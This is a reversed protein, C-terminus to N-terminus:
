ELDKSGLLLDSFFLSKGQETTLQQNEGTSESVYFAFLHDLLGSLGLGCVSQKEGFFAQIEETGQTFANFDKVSEVLDQVVLRELSFIHLEILQTQRAYKGFALYESSEISSQFAPHSLIQSRTQEAVTDPHRLVDLIDGQPLGTRDSLFSSAELYLQDETKREALAVSIASREGATVFGKKEVDLYGLADSGIQTITKEPIAFM